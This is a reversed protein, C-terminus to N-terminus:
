QCISAAGTPYKGTADHHNGASRTETWLYALTSEAGQNLNVGSEQLGDCCAGSQPEALSRGLSNKGRFWGRARRFTDLYRKDNQSNFAALAADGMTSAEVPQQDYAAKDQGYSYWGANGIPWFFDGATTARDLFDFSELAVALIEANSWHRAAAFLAHPLVGNAYTMQPEFWQWGPRRHRDFSDLLQHAARRSTKELPRIDTVGASLLHSCALIVNAQARLSLTEALVPLASDILERAVTGLSNPLGSGLVEALGLIAQSVCDDSGTSDLWRRDYGMFNHFGGTPCRAHEIFSLYKTVRNLM